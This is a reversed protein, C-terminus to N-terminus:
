PPQSGHSNGDLNADRTPAAKSNNRHDEGLLFLDLRQLEEDDQGACVVRNLAGDDFAIGHWLLLGLLRANEVTARLAPERVLEPVAAGLEEWFIARLQAACPLYAFRSGGPPYRSDDESQNGGLSTGLLEELGYLGLGFPLYEAEAWDILGKLVIEGEPSLEVMINAPVLDGHTLAWPLAEIEQLSTLVQRVIPQFRAPLYTRMQDLRWRLTLGICRKLAPLRPSSAPLASAYSAALLHAFSRVLSESSIRADQRDIRSLPVGPVCSLSYVLLQENDDRATGKAPDLVGLLKANPALEGFTDRAASLIELDLQHRPLRFQIITDHNLRLTYSCYGQSLAERLVSSPFMSRALRWCQSRLNDPLNCRAISDCAEPRVDDLGAAVADSM